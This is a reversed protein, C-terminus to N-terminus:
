RRLAISGLGAHERSSQWAAKGWWNRCTPSNSPRVPSLPRLISREVEVSVGAQLMQIEVCFCLKRGRRFIRGQMGVLPGQVIEVWDGVQLHDEPTLPSGSNILRHVHRLEGWLREQDVVPLCAAVMNTQLAELRAESSGHAFIYGTFLPLYSTTRRGQTRRQRSYLPLFFSVRRTLLSRALAKEMRPRTHLVWWRYDLSEESLSADFLTEPWLAPEQSLVPM